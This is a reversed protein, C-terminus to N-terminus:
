VCPKRGRAVSKVRFKILRLDRLNIFLPHHVIVKNKKKKTKELSKGRLNLNNSYDLRSGVELGIYEM